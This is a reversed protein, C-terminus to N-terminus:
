QLFRCPKSIQYTVDDLPGRCINNLNHVRCDFPAGGLPKDTKYISKVTKVCHSSVYIFLASNAPWVNEDFENKRNFIKVHM